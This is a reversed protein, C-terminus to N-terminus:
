SIKWASTITAAAAWYTASTTQTMGEALAHPGRISMERPHALRAVCRHAALVVGAPLAAGSPVVQGRWRVHLPRSVVCIARRVLATTHRQEAARRARVSRMPNDSSSERTGASETAAPASASASSRSRRKEVNRRRIASLMRPARTTLPASANTSAPCAPFNLRASRVAGAERSATAITSCIMASSARLSAHFMQTRAAPPVM